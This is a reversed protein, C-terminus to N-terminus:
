LRKKTIVYWVHPDYNKMKFNKFFYFCRGFRFFFFVLLFFTITLLQDEISDCPIVYDWRTSIFSKDNYCGRGIM